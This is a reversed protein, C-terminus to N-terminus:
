TIIPLCVSLEIKVICLYLTNKKCLAKEKM